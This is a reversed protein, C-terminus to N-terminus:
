LTSDWLDSVFSLNLSVHGSNCENFACWFDFMFPRSPFLHDISKNVYCFACSLVGVWGRRCLNDTTLIKNQLVFWLFYHVKLSSKLEWLYIMSYNLCGGNM